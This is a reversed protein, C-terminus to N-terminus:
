RRARRPRGRSPLSCREKRTARRFRPSTKRSSDARLSNGHARSHSPTTGGAPSFRTTSSSPPTYLFLDADTNTIELIKTAAITSLAPEGQLVILETPATSVYLTPIRRGPARAGPRTIGQSCIWRDARSPRKSPPGGTVGASESRPGPGTSSPATVWRDALWVYYGGASQRAAAAGAHQDRAAPRHGRSAAAGTPRRDAVALRNRASSSARRPTRSKSSGAPIRSANSRSSAQLRDLAITPPEASLTEGLARLYSTGRRHGDPLRGQLDDPGRARVTRTEKDIQTRGHVLDRGYRSRRRRTRWPSPPDPM